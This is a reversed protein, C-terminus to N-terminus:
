TRVKEGDKILAIKKLEDSDSNIVKELVEEIDRAEVYNEIKNRKTM